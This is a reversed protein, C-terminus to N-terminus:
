RAVVEQAFPVHAVSHSSTRHRTPGLSLEGIVVTQSFPQAESAKAIMINWTGAFTHDSPVVLVIDQVGTTM